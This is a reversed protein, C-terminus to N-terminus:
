ARSMLTETHKRIADEVIQEMECDLRRYHCIKVHIGANNHRLIAIARGIANGIWQKNNGFVGGGIFTLLVTRSNEDHSASLMRNTHNIVGCWLTAEYTADLVLTALPGWAENDIGSYACSIASSYVQAVSVEEGADLPIYRKKFTVSVDEHFGVKISDLYDNRQDGILKEKLKNLYEGGKSFTYGNQVYFYDNAHNNLM